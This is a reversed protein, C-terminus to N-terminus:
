RPYLAASKLAVAFDDGCIVSCGYNAMIVSCDLTPVESVTFGEYKADM